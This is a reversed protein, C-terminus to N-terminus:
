SVVPALILLFSAVQMIQRWVLFCNYQPMTWAFSVRCTSGLRVPLPLTVKWRGRRCCRLAYAAEVTAFILFLHAIQSMVQRLSARNLVEAEQFVVYPQKLTFHQFSARQYTQQWAWAFALFAGPTLLVDSTELHCTLAYCCSM